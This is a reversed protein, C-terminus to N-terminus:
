RCEPLVWQVVLARSISGGASTVGAQAVASVCFAQELVVQNAPLVGGQLNGAPRSALDGGASYVYNGDGGTAELLIAAVWTRAELAEPGWTLLKWSLSLDGPLGTETAPQWIEAGPLSRYVIAVQNQACNEFLAGSLIVAEMSLWPHEAQVVWDQSTQAPVPAELLLSLPAAGPELAASAVVDDSGAPYVAVKAGPIPAGGATQPADLSLALVPACDGGEQSRQGTTVQAFFLPQEDVPTPTKLGPTFVAEATSIPLPTPSPLQQVVLATQTASDGVSWPNRNDLNYFLSLAM